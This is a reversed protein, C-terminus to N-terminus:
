KRGLYNEVGSTADGVSAGSQWAPTSMEVGKGVWATGSPPDGAMRRRAANSPQIDEMADTLSRSRAAIPEYDRLWEGQYIQQPRMIKKDADTLSERWHALYGTARPIAFLVTFFEPPFGMARYVLGSYFDVNPYLKRKVFYEDARAAKELEIAIDILPDRGVLEFVDNAIDRIIKARPDFNKYVRHGFGFMVYRKEKVGALFSPINDVSGIRELMKFVAENAGGHLPGYLAGVAGAVACFVDVGSSALHRCAATSCNMEHEAHLLFMVDLAKALKPHPRHRADLGADLMYLFNEAYSMRTNPAAPSPGTNRHYAHAALTTMKGIIRVIQKDQVTHSNYIAGGAIAPNQEPHMASLSNLGALMVAMPHADHPLAEIAHVVQVPLASHRAITREWEMLQSANPMDGYVLAFATELYTSSKALSEIAYGRYRLIGREGDIYSIKSKCPATNMYGPDYMVLGRGDGGATIQKFASADVAGDSSVAIEYEKGTRSDRVHLAGAGGSPTARADSGDGGGARAGGNARKADGRVHDNIQGLRRNAVDRSDGM